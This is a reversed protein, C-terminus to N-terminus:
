LLFYTKLQAHSKFEIAGKQQQLYFAPDSVPKM